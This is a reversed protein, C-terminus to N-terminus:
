EYRIPYVTDFSIPEFVQPHEIIIISTEIALKQISLPPIPNFGNYRSNATSQWTTKTNLLTTPNDVLAQNGAIAEELTLQPEFLDAVSSNFTAEDTIAVAKAWAAKLAPHADTITSEFYHQMTFETLTSLTENFEIGQNALTEQYLAEVDPRAQGITTDFAAEVIPLRDNQIWVAQGEASNVFKFFEKAAEPNGSKAGFAIPDGNVISGGEPIVYRCDSCETQAYVGYFDITMAVAVEGDIVKSRTDVSGGAIMGNGAMRSLMEWGKEWGYKQLIIQYIRTNSTTDPPNGLSITPASTSVFFDPSALDEWSTPAELGYFDLVDDNVTFGFSSIANAVWDLQSDTYHYMEAGAINSPVNTTVLNVLDTDTIPTLLGAEAMQNFLTPGGGWALDVQRSESGLALLWGQLTTVSLFNIKDGDGTSYGAAAGYSSQLFAERFSNTIASDHRTLITLEATDTVGTNTNAATTNNPDNPDNPDNSLGNFISAAIAIVIILGVGIIVKGFGTKLISSM